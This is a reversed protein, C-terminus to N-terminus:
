THHGRFEWNFIHLHGWDKGPRDNVVENLRTGKGGCLIVVDVDTQVLPKVQKIQNLM